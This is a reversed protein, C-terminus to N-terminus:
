HKEEVIPVEKGDKFLKTGKSVHYKVKMGAVGYFRISEEDKKIIVPNEVELITDPGEDIRYRERSM